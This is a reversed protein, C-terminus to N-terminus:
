INKTQIRHRIKASFSFRSQWKKQLSLKWEAFKKFAKKFTISGDHKKILHKWQMCQMKLMQKKIFPKASVTKRTMLVQIIWKGNKPTVRYTKSM